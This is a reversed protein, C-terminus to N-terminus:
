QFNNFYNRGGYRRFRQHSNLLKMEISEKFTDCKDNMFEFWTWKLSLYDTVLLIVTVISVISRTVEKIRPFEEPYRISLVPSNFCISDQKAIKIAYSDNNRICVTNSIM